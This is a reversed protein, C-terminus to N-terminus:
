GLTFEKVLGMQQVTVVFGFRGDHLLPLDDDRLPIQIHHHQMLCAKGVGDSRQPGREGFVM